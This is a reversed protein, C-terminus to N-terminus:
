ETTVVVNWWRAFLENALENQLKLTATVEPKLNSDEGLGFGVGGVRLAGGNVLQKHQQAIVMGEDNVM